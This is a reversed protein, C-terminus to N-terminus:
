PRSDPQEELMAKIEDLKLTSSARRLRPFILDNYYDAGNRAKDPPMQHALILYHRTTKSGNPKTNEHTWIPAREPSTIFRGLAGANNQFFPDQPSFVVWLAKELAPLAASIEDRVSVLNPMLLATKTMVMIPPTKTVSAVDDFRSIYEIFRKLDNPFVSERIRQIDAGCHLLLQTLAERYETASPGHPFLTLRSSILVNAEKNSGLRWQNLADTKANNRQTSLLIVGDKAISLSIKNM